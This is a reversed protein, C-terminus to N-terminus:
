STSDSLHIQHLLYVYIIRFLRRYNDRHWRPEEALTVFRDSSFIKNKFARFLTQGENIDTISSFMVFTRLSGSIKSAANIEELLNVSVKVMGPRLNQVTLCTNQQKRHFM